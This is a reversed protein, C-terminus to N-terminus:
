QIPAFDFWYDHTATGNLSVQLYLRDGDTLQGNYTDTRAGELARDPLGDNSVTFSIESGRITYVGKREFKGDRNFWTSIQQVNDSTATQTYVGGDKYFRLFTYIDVTKSDITTTATRAIYLGDYRVGASLNEIPTDIPPTFRVHRLLTDFQPLNIDYTGPTSTFVFIYGIGNTYTFATKTKYLLGNISTTLLYSIYPETSIQEKSVLINKIREFELHMLDTVNHIDDRRYATITVANEINGGELKSFVEPLGWDIIARNNFRDNKIEAYIHWNDPVEASFGYATNTYTHQSRLPSVTLVSVAVLFLLFNKMYM